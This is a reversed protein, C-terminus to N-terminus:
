IRRADSPLTVNLSELARAVDGRGMPKTLFADCGVLQARVKDSARGQGSVVLIPTGPASQKFERCLALGDLPDGEGLVVDLFLAAFPVRDVLARAEDGTTAVHPQFGFQELLHSLYRQAVDSDDLVLVDRLAPLQLSRRQRDAQKLRARRAAARAAAKARSHEDDAHSDPGGYGTLSPASDGPLAGWDSLAGNVSSSFGGLGSLPMLDSGPEIIEDVLPPFDTIAGFAPEVAADLMPAEAIRRTVLRDLERLVHVPEIPRPLHSRSALPARQGVYVTAGERGAAAVAEIVAPDDADAIGFDADAADAVEDYAPIRQSEARLCLGLADREFQSFGHLVVRYRPTM